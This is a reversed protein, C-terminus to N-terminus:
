TLSDSDSWADESEEVSDRTSSEYGWVMEKVVADAQRKELIERLREVLELKSGSLYILPNFIAHGALNAKLANVSLCGCVSPDTILPAVPHM